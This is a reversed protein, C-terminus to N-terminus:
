AFIFLDDVHMVMLTIPKGSWNRKVLISESMEKWGEKGAVSNKFFQTYRRPADKLGYAAKVIRIVLGGRLQPIMHFPLDDLLHLWVNEDSYPCQLFATMMDTKAAQLGQTLAWVIAAKVLGSDTTGSYTELLPRMDEFRRM